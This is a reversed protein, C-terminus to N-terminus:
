SKPKIQKENNSVKLMEASIDKNFTTARFM